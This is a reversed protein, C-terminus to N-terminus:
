RIHLTRELLRFRNQRPFVSGFKTPRLGSQWEAVHFASVLDLTLSAANRLAPDELVRPDLPPRVERGTGAGGDDAYFTYERVSLVANATHIIRSVDDSTMISDASEYSGTLELHKVTVNAQSLTGFM